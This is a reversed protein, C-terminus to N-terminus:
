DGRELSGKWCRSRGTAPTSDRSRSLRLARRRAAGRAAESRRRTSCGSPATSGVRRSGLSRRRTRTRSSRRARAYRRACRASPSAASRSSSAARASRRPCRASTTARDAPDGRVSPPEELDKLLADAADENMTDAGFILYVRRSAEFPRMHLDRRLERIDDIRIQDGVPELVYLDPHTRREVRAHDGLLEAAFLLALARKGVGPPGHLLYAHARGTPSRRRSCASRRTSSAVAFRVTMRPASPEVAAWVEAAIEGVDRPEATRAPPRCSAGATASRSSSISRARRAAHGADAEHIDAELTTYDRAAKRGVLERALAVPADFCCSSIRGRCRSSATSSRARALRAAARAGRRRAERGPAGRELRRLPRLRRPRKPRARRRTAAACPLSRGCLADRRAGPAGRRRLRVRREPLRRGRPQVPQRRLAPLQLLRRPLGDARATEALQRRRRGRAPATSAKSRSCSRGRRRPYSARHPRDDGPAGAEDARVDDLREERAAVLHVNEVVERLPLAPVPRAPASSCTARCGRGPRRRRRPGARPRRGDRRGPPRARRPPATRVSSASTFTRPVRGSGRPLAAGRRSPRRRRSRRRSRRRTRRARASVAGLSPREGRVARRLEAPSSYRAM